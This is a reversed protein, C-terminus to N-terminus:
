TWILKNLVKDLILVWLTALLIMQGRTTGEALKKNTCSGFTLLLVASAILLNKVTKM